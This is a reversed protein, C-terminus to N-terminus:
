MSPVQDMLKAIEDNKKRLEAIKAKKDADSMKTDSKIKLM